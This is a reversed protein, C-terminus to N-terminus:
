DFSGFMSRKKYGNDMVQSVGGLTRTIRWKVGGEFFPRRWPNGWLSEYDSMIILIFYQFVSLVILFLIDVTFIRKFM